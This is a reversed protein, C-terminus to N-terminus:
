LFVMSNELNKAEHPEQQPGRPAIEPGTSPIRCATQALSAGAPWPIPGLTAWPAPETHFDYLANYFKYLKFLVQGLVQVFM